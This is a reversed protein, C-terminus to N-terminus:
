STILSNRPGLELFFKALLVGWGQPLHHRLLRPKSPLLPTQEMPTGFYMKLFASQPRIPAISTAIICALMYMHMM